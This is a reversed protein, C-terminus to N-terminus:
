QPDFPSFNQCEVPTFMKYVADHRLRQLVRAAMHRPFLLSQHLPLPNVMVVIKACPMLSVKPKFMCSAPLSAFLLKEM